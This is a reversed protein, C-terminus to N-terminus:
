GLIALGGLLFSVIVVKLMKPWATAQVTGLHKSSQQHCRAQGSAEGWVEKSVM